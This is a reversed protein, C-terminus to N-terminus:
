VVVDEVCMNKKNEKKELKKYAYFSMSLSILNIAQIPIMIVNFIMNKGNYAKTIIAVVECGIILLVIVFSIKCLLIGNKNTRFIILPLLALALILVFFDWM